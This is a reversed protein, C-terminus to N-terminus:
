VHPPSTPCVHPCSCPGRRRVKANDLTVGVRHKDERGISSRNRWMGGMKSIFAVSLKPARAEGVGAGNTGDSTFRVPGFFLLLGVVM